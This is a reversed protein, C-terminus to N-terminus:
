HISHLPHLVRPDMGKFVASQLVVLGELTWSRYSVMALLKLTDSRSLQNVIVSTLIFTPYYPSVCGVPLRGTPSSALTSM